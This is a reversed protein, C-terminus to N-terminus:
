KTLSFRHEVYEPVQAYVEVSPAYDGYDADTLTISPSLPPARKTKEGIHDLIKRVSKQEIIFVIVKMESGCKTCRLVDVEFIKQILRAWTSNSKGAGRVEEVKVEENANERKEKGRYSSSYIGYYYVLSEYPSPIHGALLAMFEMITYTTSMGSPSRDQREYVTVTNEDPNIKVREVSIDARSMYR